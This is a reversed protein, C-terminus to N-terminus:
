ATRCLMNNWSIWLWAEASVGDGRAAAQRTQKLLYTLKNSTQSWFIPYSLICPVISVSLRLM